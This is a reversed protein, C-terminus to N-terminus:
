IKILMIKNYIEKWTKVRIVNDKCICDNNWPQDFLLLTAKKKNKVKEVLHPNDDIYIDYNYQLKIDYPKAEVLILKQYHLGKKINFTDLKERLQSKFKFTRASLIDIQHDQNLKQLFVPAENDILSVSVANNYIKYFIEFAEEESLNWDIYFDWRQVDEKKFNSKFKQNYINIYPTIIDLLVGDVDVAIKM